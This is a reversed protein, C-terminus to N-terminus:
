HITSLLEPRAEKPMVRLLLEVADGAEIAQAQERDGVVRLAFGKEQQLQLIELLQRPSVQSVEDLVLVSQRDLDIKGQALGDLLPTMAYTQSIGADKLADAQRWADVLPKLLTTKGSGAVGILFGLGGAQGLANIAALQAAATHQSARSTSVRGPSPQPSRSTGSRATGRGRRCAPM